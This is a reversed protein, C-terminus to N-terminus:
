LWSQTLKYGNEYLKYSLKYVTELGVDAGVGRITITGDYEYKYDLLAAVRYTIDIPKNDVIAYLRIRRSMGTRSVHYLVTYVHNNKEFIELLSQKIKEKEEKNM